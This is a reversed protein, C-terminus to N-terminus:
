FPVNKAGTTSSRRTFVTCWGPKWIGPPMSTAGTTKTNRMRSPICFINGNEAPLPNTRNRLEFASSGSMILQVDKFQDHIIKATLGINDIRQAEDIFVLRANGVITEIEKTNPNTLRTRVLPDDADLFLADRRKLIERVLSTKGVQRAGILLITRGKFLRRSIEPKLIRQIM